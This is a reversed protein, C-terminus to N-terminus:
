LVPGQNASAAASSRGPRLVAGRATRLAVTLNGKQVIRAFLKAGVPAGVVRISDGATLNLGSSQVLRPDGLHVDVTGSSTQVLVHPGFPASTSQTDFSLVTGQFSVERSRNYASTRPQSILSAKQASAVPVVMSLVVLVGCGAASKIRKM